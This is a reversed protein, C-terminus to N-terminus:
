AVGHRSCLFWHPHSAVMSSANTGVPGRPARSPKSPLWLPGLPHLLPHCQRDKQASHRDKPPTQSAMPRPLQRSAPRWGPLQRSAPRQGPLQRSAATPGNAVVCVYVPYTTCTAVKRIRTAGRRLRTAAMSSQIVIISSSHSGKPVNVVRQSRKLHWPVRFSGPLQHGVSFSGPLQRGVPFSVARLPSSQVRPSRAPPQAGQPVTRNKPFVPYHSVRVPHRPSWVPPRPSQVHVRPSGVPAYLTRLRNYLVITRDKPRGKASRQFCQRVQSAQSATAGEEKTRVFMIDQFSCPLQRAMHQLWLPIHHSVTTPLEPPCFVAVNKDTFVILM